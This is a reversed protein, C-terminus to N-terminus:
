HGFSEQLVKLFDQMPQFADMIGAFIWLLALLAIFNIMLALIIALIIKIVKIM